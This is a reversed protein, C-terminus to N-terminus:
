EPLEMAGFCEEITQRGTIYAGHCFCKWLPCSTSRQVFHGTNRDTVRVTDACTTVALSARASSNTVASVYKFAEDILAEQADKLKSFSM